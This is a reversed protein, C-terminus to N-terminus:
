ICHVPKHKIMRSYGYMVSCHSVKIAKSILTIFLKTYTESKCHLCHFLRIEYTINM